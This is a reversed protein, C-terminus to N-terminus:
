IKIFLSKKYMWNLIFWETLLILGGSILSQYESGFVSAYNKGLITMYSGSIFEVITHAMVYAAISNLGIVKLFHLLSSKNLIEAYYYFLGILVFCWAGSFLTWSPTWIRKVIPVLHTFHLIASIIFLGAAVKLFKVVKEKNNKESLIINGAFLGLIMTGLTPIFSLTAYGGGNYIFPKSRQFLNLFWRDFVWAINNNKNFHSSLGTLNENLSLPAGSELTNYEAIPFSYFLLTYLVLILSLTIIQFKESKYFLLFLFPYGLGIQTLTDEFTWNIMERDISRLFVGLLILILSRKITHYLLKSKSDGKKIRSLISFPLAVGVLFTFSPQILDHLSCGVWEVHSQHYALFAWFSSNPLSDAINHFELVEAMMLLM